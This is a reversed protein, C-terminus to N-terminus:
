MGEGRQGSHPVGTSLGAGGATEKTTNGIRVKRLTAVNRIANSCLLTTMIVAPKVQPASRRAQTIIPRQRRPLPNVFSSDYANAAAPMMEIQKKQPRLGCDVHWQNPRTRKVM